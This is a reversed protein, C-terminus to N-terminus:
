EFMALLETIKKFRLFVKLDVKERPHSTILKRLYVDRMLNTDSLYYEMQLRVRSLLLTESNSESFPPPTEGVVTTRFSRLVADVM